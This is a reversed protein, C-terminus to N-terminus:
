EASSIKKATRGEKYIGAWIGSGVLFSLNGSQFNVLTESGYLYMIHPDPDLRKSSHPDLELDLDLSFTLLNKKLPFNKLINEDFFTV